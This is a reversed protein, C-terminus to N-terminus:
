LLYIKGINHILWSLDRKQYSNTKLDFGLYTIGNYIHVLLFSLDDCLQDIDEHEINLFSVHSKRIYYGMCTAYELLKLLGQLQLFERKSRNSFIVVENFFLLHMVYCYWGYFHRQIFCKANLIIISLGEVVLIFLLLALPFGQQLSGGFKSFPSRYIQKDFCYFLYLFCM